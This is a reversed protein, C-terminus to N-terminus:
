ELECAMEAEAKAMDQKVGQILRRAFIDTKRRKYFEKLAEVLHAYAADLEKATGIGYLLCRGLRAEVDGRIYPDEEAQEYAREYLIYAYIENKEVGGRGSRYLDGLKYLCNGDNFLLAGKEFFERVKKMDAAQHRGYYWCYGCNTIAQRIGADAAMKYLRYAKAFDQAMGHGTYYMAGLNLAAEPINKDICLRLSQAVKALLRWDSSEYYEGAWHFLGDYDEDAILDDAEALIDRIEAASFREGVSPKGKYEEATVVRSIKKTKEPPFPAEEGTFTGCSLVVGLVPVNDGGFPIEVFTGPALMGMPSIYSYTREFDRPQVTCYIYEM